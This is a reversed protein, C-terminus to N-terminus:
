SRLAGLLAAALATFAAAALSLVAPTMRLLTVEDCSKPIPVVPQERRSPWVRVLRMQPALGRATRMEEITLRSCLVRQRM